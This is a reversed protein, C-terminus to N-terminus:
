SFIHHSSSTATSFLIIFIKPLAEPLSPLNWFKNNVQLVKIWKKSKAQKLSLLISSYATGRVFILVNFFIWIVSYSVLRLLYQLKFLHSSLCNNGPSCHHTSSNSLEVRIRLCLVTVQDASRLTFAGQTDGHLTTHERNRVKLCCVVSCWFLLAKVVFSYIFWVCDQTSVTNLISYYFIIFSQAKTFNNNHKLKQLIQASGGASFSSKLFYKQTTPSPNM